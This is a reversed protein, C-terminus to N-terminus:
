PRMEPCVDYAAEIVADVEADTLRRGSERPTGPWSVDVDRIDERSPKGGCVWDAQNMLPISFEDALYGIGNREFSDRYPDAWDFEHCPAWSPECHDASAVPAAGLGVALAALGGGILKKM